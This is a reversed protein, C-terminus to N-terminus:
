EKREIIDCLCHFGCVEEDSADSNDGKLNFVEDEDEEDSNVKRAGFTINGKIKDDGDNDSDSSPHNAKSVPKSKSVVSRSKNFTLKKGM